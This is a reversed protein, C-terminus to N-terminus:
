AYPNKLVYRSFVLDCPSTKLVEAILDIEALTFNNSKLCRHYKSKSVFIKLCLEEQTMKLQRRRTEINEATYRKM